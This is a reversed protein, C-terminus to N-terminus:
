KQMGNLSKSPECKQNVVASRKVEKFKVLQITDSPAIQGVYNGALLNVPDSSSRFFSGQVTMKEDRAEPYQAAWGFVGNCESEIQILIPIAGGCYEEFPFVLLRCINKGPPSKTKAFHDVENKIFSMVGAVSLRPPCVVIENKSQRAFPCLNKKIIIEDIWKQTAREAEKIYLSPAM